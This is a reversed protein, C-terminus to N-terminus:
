PISSPSANLLKLGDEAWFRQVNAEGLAQILFTRAEPVDKIRSVVFIAALRNEATICEGPTDILTKAAEPGIRILAAVAPMREEIVQPTKMWTNPSALWRQLTINKILFPIAEKAKLQGFADALGIYLGSEDVQAPPVKTWALLLPIESNTIRAVVAQRTSEKALSRALELDSPQQAFGLMCSFAISTM